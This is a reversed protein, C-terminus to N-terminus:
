LPKQKPNEFLESPEAGAGAFVECVDNTHEHYPVRLLLIVSLLANRLLLLLDLM